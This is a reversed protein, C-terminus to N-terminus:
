PTKLLLASILSGKVVVFLFGSWLFLFVTPIFVSLLIGFTRRFINTPLEPLVLFLDFDIDSNLLVKDLIPRIISWREETQFISLAASGILSFAIISLTIGSLCFIILFFRIWSNILNEDSVRITLSSFWSKTLFGVTLQIYSYYLVSFSAVMFSQITIFWSTRHDILSDEHRIKIVYEHYVSTLADLTEKPVKLASM